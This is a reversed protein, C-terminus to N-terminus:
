DDGIAQELADIEAQTSCYDSVAVAYAHELLAVAGPSVGHKVAAEFTMRLYVACWWKDRPTANTTSTGIM